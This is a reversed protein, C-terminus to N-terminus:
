IMEHNLYEMTLLILYENEWIRYYFHSNFIQFHSVFLSLIELQEDSFNNLNKRRDDTKKKCFKM